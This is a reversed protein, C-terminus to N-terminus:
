QWLRYNEMKWILILDCSPKVAPQKTFLLPMDKVVLLSNLAFPEVLFWCWRWNIDYCAAYLMAEM